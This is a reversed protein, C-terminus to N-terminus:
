RQDEERTMKRKRAKLVTTVLLTKAMTVATATAQFWRNSTAFWSMYGQLKKINEWTRRDQYDRLM